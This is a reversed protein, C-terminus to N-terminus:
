PVRLTTYCHDQLAEIQINRHSPLEGTFFLCRIARIIGDASDNYFYFLDDYSADEFNWDVFRVYPLNNFCEKGKIRIIQWGLKSLRNDRLTDLQVYKEGEHYQKGDAEIGIKKSPDAFDLRYTRVPYQPHFWMGEARIGEWVKTEIPTFHEQWDTLYDKKGGSLIVSENRKYYDTIQSITLSM